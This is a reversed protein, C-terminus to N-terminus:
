FRIRFDDCMQDSEEIISIQQICDVLSNRFHAAGICDSGDCCVFWILDNGDSLIRRKYRANALAEVENSGIDRCHELIDPVNIENLVVLSNDQRFIIDDDIILVAIFDIPFNVDDVPFCISCVLCIVIVEHELFDMLLWCDDTLCEHASQIRVVGDSQIIDAECLFVDFVDVLDVDDGASCCVMCSQDTLHDDLLHRM